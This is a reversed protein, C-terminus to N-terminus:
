DEDEEDKKKKKKLTSPPHVTVALVNEPTDGAIDGSEIEDFRSIYVAMEKSESTVKPIIAGIDDGLTKIVKKTVKTSRDDVAKDKEKPKIQFGIKKAAKEADTQGLKGPVYPKVYDKAKPKLKQTKDPHGGPTRIAIPNDSPTSGRISGSIMEFLPQYKSRIDVSEDIGLINELTGVIFEYNKGQGMGKAIKEAKKWLTEVESVSKGTRKAFSKVLATPM